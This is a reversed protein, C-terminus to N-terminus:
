QALFEQPTLVVIGRFPNLVLLDSDGSLICAANGPVAVELFKNDRPDRCDTVVQNVEVLEADRVFADLFAM